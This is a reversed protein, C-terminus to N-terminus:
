QVKKLDCFMPFTEADKQVIELHYEDCIIVPRAVKKRFTHAPCDSCKSIHKIYIRNM